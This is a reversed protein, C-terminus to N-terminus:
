MNDKIRNKIYQTQKRYSYIFIILLGIVIIISNWDKLFPFMYQIKDYIILAFLVVLMACITRYTNNVESLTELKDDKKSAVVFDKYDSFTIFKTRKLVPEIFLSGIRSIVLGIFYYLFLGIITDQQLFSFRTSATGIVAFVMGPLLYNFLNYSSLIGILEKM